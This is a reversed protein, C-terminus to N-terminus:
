YQGHPASSRFYGPKTLRIEARGAPVNDFSFSGDPGTLMARSSPELQVLVRPIPKGTVSNVVTGALTYTTKADDTQSWAALTLLLMITAFLVAKRSYRSM